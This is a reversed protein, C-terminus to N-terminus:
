GNITTWPLRVFGQPCEWVQRGNKGLSRGARVSTVARAASLVINLLCFSAGSRPPRSPLRAKKSKPGQCGVSRM